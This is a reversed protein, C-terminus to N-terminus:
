SINIVKTLLYTVYEEPYNPVFSCYTANLCDDPINPIYLASMSKNGRTQLQHGEYVRNNEYHSQLSKTRCLFQFKFITLRISVADNSRM